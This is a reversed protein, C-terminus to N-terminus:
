LSTYISRLSSEYAAPSFLPLRARGASVLRNSLEEAELNPAILKSLAATFQSEAGSGAACLLASEGDIVTEPVGGVKTAVIPIGAAMAELIVNPSGESLSPLAFVDALAFYPRVDLQHGAFHIVDELQSDAVFKVLAAHEPGDGVLIIRFAWDPHQARMAAAARLLHIQGKESSLRGVSLILKAEPKGGLRTRLADVAEPSPPVFDEIANPLVEISPKRVGAKILQDRFPNCVTVVRNAANLSWPNLRNYLGVVFNEATYGHHFALWRRDQALQGIRVLFNTKVAHTQLIDPQRKEIVARLGGIVGLDFRRREGVVDVPIGAAAASKLFPTNAILPDGRHFTAVSFEIRPLNGASRVRSAFRLLNKAPGSLTGAEIVALVRLESM